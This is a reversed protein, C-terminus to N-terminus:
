LHLLGIRERRLFARYELVLRAWGFVNLGKQLLRMAGPLRIPVPRDLIRVDLGAQRFRDVLAHHQYFIVVPEFRSRDLSATLLLLCYHSGGVTGDTNSEAYLIRTPATHGTM